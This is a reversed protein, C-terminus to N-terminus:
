RITITAQGLVDSVADHINIDDVAEQIKNDIDDECVFEEQDLNEVATDILENVHDEIGGHELLLNALTKISENATNNNEQLQKIKDALHQNETELFTIRNEIQPDKEAEMITGTYQKTNEETAM